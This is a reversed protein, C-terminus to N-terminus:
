SKPAQASNVPLCPRDAEIEPLPIVEVMSRLSRRALEQYELTGVHKWTMEDERLDRLVKAPTGAALTAPPIHGKSKVFAMAAVIAREGIVANDMVVANMGVLAGRGVRCGHLVAGHGLRAVLRDVLSARSESVSVGEGFACTVPAQPSCDHAEMWMRELGFEPNIAEAAEALLRRFGAADRSPRSLHLDRAMVAGDVRQWGLQLRRAALGNQQLIAAIEGALQDIM